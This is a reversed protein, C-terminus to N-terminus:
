MEIFLIDKIYITQLFLNVFLLYKGKFYQFIKYVFCIDNKIFVEVCVCMRYPIYNQYLEKPMLEILNYDVTCIFFLLLEIILLFFNYGSSQFISISFSHGLLHGSDQISFFIYFSKLSTCLLLFKTITILNNILINYLIHIPYHCQVIKKKHLTQPFNNIIVLAILFAKIM